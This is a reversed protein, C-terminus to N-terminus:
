FHINGYAQKSCIIEPSSSQGNTRKHINNNNNNNINDNNNVDVTEMFLGLYGTNTSQENM